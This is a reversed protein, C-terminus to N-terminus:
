SATDGIEDLWRCAQTVGKLSFAATGASGGFLRARVYLRSGKKLEKLLSEDALFVAHGHWVVRARYTKVKGKDVQVSVRDSFGDLAAPSYDIIVMVRSKQARALVLSPQVTTFFAEVANEAPRLALRQMTGDDEDQAERFTWGDIKPYDAGGNEAGSGTEPVARRASASASPESKFSDLSKVSGLCSYICEIFETDSGAQRCKLCSEPIAEVAGAPLAGLLAASAFLGALFSKTM